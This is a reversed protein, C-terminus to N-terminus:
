RLRVAVVVEGLRFKKEVTLFTAHKINDSMM